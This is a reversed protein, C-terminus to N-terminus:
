KGCRHWNMQYGADGPRGYCWGLVKLEADVAERASCGADSRPSGGPEGRCEENAAIWGEILAKINDARAPGVGILLVAAAFARLM